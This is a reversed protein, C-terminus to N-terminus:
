DTILTLLYHACGAVRLQRTAEFLDDATLNDQQFDIGGYGNIQLDMLAPAVWLDHPAQTVSEAESIVGDSWRLRMPQGTAYHRAIAEGREHIPRQLKTM